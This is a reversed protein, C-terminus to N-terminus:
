AVAPCTANNNLANAVGTLSYTALVAPPGVVAPTVAVTYLTSPNHIFGATKLLSQTATYAGNQAYYAEEASSLVQADTKCSAQQGRDGLGSVAFVVIAALIGLIVIVVMMEVLTFGDEGRRASLKQIM